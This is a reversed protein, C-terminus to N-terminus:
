AGPFGAALEDTYRVRLFEIARRYPKAVKDHYVGWERALETVTKGELVVARV